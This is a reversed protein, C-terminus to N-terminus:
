PAASGLTLPAGTALMWGALLLAAALCLGAMYFQRAAYRRTPEMTEGYAGRRTPRTVDSLGGDEPAGAEQRLRRLALSFRLAFLLGVVFAMIAMQDVPPVEVM